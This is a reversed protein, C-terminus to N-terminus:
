PGATKARVRLRGYDRVFDICNGSLVRDRNAGLDM